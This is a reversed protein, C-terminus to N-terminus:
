KTQWDEIVREKARKNLYVTLMFAEKDRIKTRGIEVLEDANENGRIGCHGKVWKLTVRIGAKEGKRIEWRIEEAMIEGRTAKQELSRRIREQNDTRVLIEKGGEQRCAKMWQQIAKKIGVM